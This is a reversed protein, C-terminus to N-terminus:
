CMCGRYQAHKLRVQAALESLSGGSDNVSRPIQFSPAIISGYSGRQSSPEELVPQRVPSHPRSIAQQDLTSRSVVDQPLHAGVSPYYAHRTSLQHGHHPVHEQKMEPPPTLTRAFSSHLPTATWSPPPPRYVSDLPDNFHVASSAHMQPLQFSTM